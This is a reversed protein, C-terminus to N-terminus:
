KGETANSANTTTKIRSRAHGTQDPHSIFHKQHIIVPVVIIQETLGYKM